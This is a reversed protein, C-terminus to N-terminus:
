DRGLFWRRLRKKFSVPLLRLPHKQSTEVPTTNAADMLVTGIEAAAEELHIGASRMAPILTEAMSEESSLLVSSVTKILDQVDLRKRNELSAINQDSDLFRSGLYRSLAQRSSIADVLKWSGDHDVLINESCIGGHTADIQHASAVSFAISALGTFLSQKLRNPASTTEDLNIQEHTSWEQPMARAFLWPRIIGLHQNHVTAVIPTVWAPNQVKSAAECADLLENALGAEMGTPLRVIKFALPTGRMEDRGRILWHGSGVAVCQCPIFWSPTMRSFSQDWDMLLKNDSSSSHELLASKSNLPTPFVNNTSHDPRTPDFSISLDTLAPVFEEQNRFNELRVLEDIADVLKPYRSAYERQPSAQGLEASICLDADILDLLCSPDALEPFCAVYNEASITQGARKREIFDICAQDILVDKGKAAVGIWRSDSAMMSIDIM